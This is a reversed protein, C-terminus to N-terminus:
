AGEGDGEGRATTDRARAGVKGTEIGRWTGAVRSNADGRALSTSSSVFSQSMIATCTRLIVREVDKM